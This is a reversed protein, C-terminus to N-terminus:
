AHRDTAPRQVSRAEGIAKKFCVMPPPAADAHKGCVLRCERWLHDRQGPRRRVKRHPGKVWQLASWTLLGYNGAAGNAEKALDATALFGFVGLRYHHHGAGRGAPCFTATIARSRPQAALTAAVWSDLVSRFNAASKASSPAFVNLNCATKAPGTTKFSWTLLSPPRMCRAGYHSADRVGESKVAPEASGTEIEWPRRPMPLGLFANVKGNNITQGQAKGQAIKVTLSDRPCSCIVWRWGRPKWGASCRTGL